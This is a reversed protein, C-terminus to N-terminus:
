AILEDQFIAPSFMRCPTEFCSKEMNEDPKHSVFPIRVGADWNEYGNMSGFGIVDTTDLSQSNLSMQVVDDLYTTSKGPWCVTDLTLKTLDLVDLTHDVVVNTQSEFLSKDKAIAWGVFQGNKIIGARGILDIQDDTKRAVLVADTNWYQILMDGPMANWPAMGMIVERDSGFGVFLRSSYFSLSNSDLSVFNSIRYDAGPGLLMALRENIIKASRMSTDNCVLGWLHGLKSTWQRPSAPNETFERYQPGLFCISGAVSGRLKVMANNAEVEAATNPMWTKASEPEAALWLRTQLSPRRTLFSILQHYVPKIEDAWALLSRLTPILKCYQARDNGCLSYVLSDASEGVGPSALVKPVSISKRSLISRVLGAFWAMSISDDSMQLDRTEWFLVLDQYVSFYSKTYNVPVCTDVCDSAMGVFAYVKDLPDAAYCNHFQDLLRDLSYSDGDRYKAQRITEFRLVHDIAKGDLPVRSKYQKMLIVFDTWPLSAQGSVIRVRSAMSIEQVVWCRQWYEEQSLLYLWYKTVAWDDNAKSIAWDRHWQSVTSTEVWRPAPHEGLWVLVELARSYIFSMLPVQMSKEALNSHDISIADVWLVVTREKDRLRYLAAWLNVGVDMRKGNVTVPRRRSTDGAEYVLARYRPRELFSATELSAELGALMNGSPYLYLLRITSDSRQYGNYDEVLWPLMLAANESRLPPYDAPTWPELNNWGFWVDSVTSQVATFVVWFALFGTTVTRWSTLYRQRVTQVQQFLSVAKRRVDVDM